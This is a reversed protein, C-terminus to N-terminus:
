PSEEHDDVDELGLGAELRSLRAYEKGQDIWKRRLRYNMAWLARPVVIPSFDEPLDALELMRALPWGTNDAITKLTEPQPKRGALVKAATSKGIGAMEAFKRTSDWGSKQAQQNLYESLRSV